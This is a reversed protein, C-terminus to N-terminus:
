TLELVQGVKLQETRELPKGTISDILRNFKTADGYVEKAISMANDGSIVTHTLTAFGETKPSSVNKLKGLVVGKSKKSPTKKLSKKKGKNSSKKIIKVSEGFNTKIVTASNSYGSSSITRTLDQIYYKGSLYKGFGKLEITDGAKLKITNENAVFNLTGTLTRLKITNYKKQVKGSSSKKTHNKNSSSSKKSGSSSSKKTSTNKKTSTSKIVQTSKTWKGTQPNYTMSSKRPM